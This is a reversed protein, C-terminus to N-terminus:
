IFSIVISDYQPMVFGLFFSVWFLNAVYVNVLVTIEVEWVRVNSVIIQILHKLNQWCLNQM